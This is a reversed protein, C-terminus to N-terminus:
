ISKTSYKKWNATLEDIEKNAEKMIGTDSHMEKWNGRRPNHLVVAFRDRFFRPKGIKIDVIWKNNGISFFLYAGDKQFITKLDNLNHVATLFSSGEPVITEPSGIYPFMQVHSHFVTQGIKGHEFSSVSGYTKKIFNSFLDNLEVFENCVDEPYEGICSLHKKPIILIHGRTLPHVDCVVWFNSTEKLPFKLAFSNPDCHPCDKRIASESFDM